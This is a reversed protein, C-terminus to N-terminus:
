LEPFEDPNFHFNDKKQHGGKNYHRKDDYRRRNNNSNDEVKLNEFVQQNLEEEKKNM